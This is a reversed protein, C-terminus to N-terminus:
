GRRESTRATTTAARGPRSSESAASTRARQGRRATSVIPGTGSVLRGSGAPISGAGAWAVCSSTRHANSLGDERSSAPPGAEQGGGLRLGLLHQRQHVLRDDLVRDFFGDRGPDLLDDDDRRALLPRDLVVEVQRDLELPEELVLALDLLQPHNAPDAIERLHRVDTLLLLEPETVGDQHGLVEDAVLRERHDERVVDHDAVSRADALEDVDVVLGVVGHDRHHLDRALLGTAVADDGRFWGLVREVVAPEVAHGPEDLLRLGPVAGEFRATM